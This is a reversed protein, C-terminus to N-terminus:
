CTGWAAWGPYPYGNQGVCVDTTNGGHYIDAEYKATSWNHWTQNLWEVDTADHGWNEPEGNSSAEMGVRAVTASAYLGSDCGAHGGNIEFCWQSGGASKTLYQNETWGAVTWPSENAEYGHFTNAATFWRLSCCDHGGSGWGAEDGTETWLGYPEQAAWEEDDVFAGDFWEFVNMHETTIWSTLGLVEEGKGKMPWNAVGYCHQYQNASCGSGWAMASASLNTVAVAASLVTTTLVALYIRRTV